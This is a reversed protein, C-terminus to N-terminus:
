DAFSRGYKESKNETPPNACSGAAEDPVVEDVLPYLCGFPIM